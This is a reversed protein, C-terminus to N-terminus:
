PNTPVTGSATATKVSKRRDACGTVLLYASVLLVWVPFVIAIWAFDSIELLLVLGVIFGVYTLWRPFRTTRLGISSTVFMFVAAMKVSYVNMLVYCTRRGIAYAVRETSLGGEVGFTELLGSAVASSAFLTAVFLLGSGLFVTAFLRDELVGIRHRLVAMFWLFAVGSFPMLNLAFRVSGRRGPDALWAGSETPDAPVVWRILVLGSLFLVSFLVGALAVMESVTAQSREKGPLWNM